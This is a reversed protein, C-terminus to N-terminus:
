PSPVGRMGGVGSEALLIRVVDGVRADSVPASVRLHDESTGSVIGADVSEVLVDATGGVRSAAYGSELRTGLDRLERARVATRVPPVQGEMAAAPTGARRSYRFVHLRSFGCQEVFALTRRHDDDSEGPFGAMVDTTVALGPIAARAEGLVKAFTATDYGRRMAALVADSGSQLPVHLHPMVSATAELRALLRPTLDLPEISSIRVRAVGTAAVGAVLEALDVGADSYRGINIGALVVERTGSAVLAEVRAVVGAMPVGRPLGRADPVICFACRHDCGDQVKVTVRTRFLGRATPAIAIPRAPVRTAGCARVVSETVGTKDPQVIVRPGLAGLGQPDLAALCGTVVVTPSGPRALARRVEKRAKADAESTVTCTNVVVVDATADGDVPCAGRSLLEGAIAESEARNVKCGLTRIAVRPVRGETAM